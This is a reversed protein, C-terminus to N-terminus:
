CESHKLSHSKWDTCYQVWRKLDIFPFAPTKNGSKDAMSCTRSSGETDKSYCLGRDQQLHTGKKYPQPKIPHTKQDYRNVM